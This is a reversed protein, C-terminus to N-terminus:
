NLIKITKNLQELGIRADNLTKMAKNVALDIIKLAAKDDLECDVNSQPSAYTLGYTIKVPQKIYDLYYTQITSGSYTILEFQNNNSVLRIIEETWPKKFPDAIIKNYEDRTIPLINTRETVVLNKCDTKQLDVQELLSIRYGTPLSVFFSNPRNPNATLSSSTYTYTVNKLYDLYEQNKELGEKVLLEIMDDSARNLYIDIEEPSLEPASYNSQKDLWHLFQQHMEVVTM